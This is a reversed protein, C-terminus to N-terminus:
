KAFEKPMSFELFMRNKAVGNQYEQVIYGDKNSEILKLSIDRDFVRYKINGSEDISADLTDSEELKGNYFIVYFLRLKGSNLYYKAITDYGSKEIIYFSKDVVMDTSFKLNEGFLSLVFFCFLLVNKM